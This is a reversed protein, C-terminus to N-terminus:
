FGSNCAHLRSTYTRAAPGSVTVTSEMAMQLMKLSYWAGCLMLITPTMGETRM